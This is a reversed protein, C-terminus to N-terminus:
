RERRRRSGALARFNPSVSNGRPGHCNACVQQALVTGHVREDALNRSRETDACGAALAAVALALILHSAKMDSASPNNNVSIGFILDRDGNIFRDAYRLDFEDISTHGHFRGTV